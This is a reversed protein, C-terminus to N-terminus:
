KRYAEDYEAMLEPSQQWAKCVATDYDIRPDAKMIEAAKAGIKSEVSNGASHGSGSKGIERFLDSKELKETLALQEDLVTIYANYNAENSKKMDYLTQALGEKGLADYKKAVQSMEQMALSKKLEEVEELAKKVEPSLEQNEPTASKKTDEVDKEEEKKSKKPPAPPKEDEVEKEAAEPDVDAKGIAVLEEYQALQEANFKSKDIRFAKAM